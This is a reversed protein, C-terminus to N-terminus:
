PIAKVGSVTMRLSAFFRPVHRHHSIQLFYWDAPLNLPNLPNLLNLPNHIARRAILKIHRKAAPTINKEERRVCDNQAFRLIKTCPPQSETAIFVLRSRGRQHSAGGGKGRKAPASHISPMFAMRGCPCQGGRFGRCRKFGRVGPRGRRGKIAGALPGGCGEAAFGSDLKLVRLGAPGTLRSFGQKGFSLLM